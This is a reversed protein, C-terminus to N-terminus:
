DDMNGGCIYVALVARLMEGNCRRRMTTSNLNGIIHPWEKNQDLMENAIKNPAHQRVM